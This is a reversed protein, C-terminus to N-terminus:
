RYPLDTPRDPEGERPDHELLEAPPPEAQREVAQREIAHRAALIV